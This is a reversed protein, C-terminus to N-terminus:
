RFVPTLIVSLLKTKENIARVDKPFIKDSIIQVSYLGTDQIYISGMFSDARFYPYEIESADKVVKNVVPQIELINNRINLLVKNKYGLHTTDTAASNLWVNFRGSKSVVVNWEATSSSPDKENIYCEAEEVHLAIVGDPLQMIKNISSDGGQTQVNNCSFLATAIIIAILVLKIKRM